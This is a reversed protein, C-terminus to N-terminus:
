VWSSGGAGAECARWVGWERRHGSAGCGPLVRLTVPFCPGDAWRALFPALGGAPSSSGVCLGGTRDPIGCTLRGTSTGSGESPLGLGQPRLSAPCCPCGAEAGCPGGLSGARRGAPPVEARVKVMHHPLWPVAQPHLASDSPARSFRSQPCKRPLCLQRSLGPGAEGVASPLRARRRPSPTGTGRPPPLGLGYGWRVGQVKRRVLSRLNAWVVPLRIEGGAWMLQKHSEAVWLASDSSRPTGRPEPPSATVRFGSGDPM